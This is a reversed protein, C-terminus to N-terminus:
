KFLFFFCESTVFYFKQIIVNQKWKNLKEEAFYNIFSNFPSFQLSHSNNPILKDQVHEQEIHVTHIQSYIHVPM